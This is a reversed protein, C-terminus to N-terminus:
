SWISSFNNGKYSFWSISPIKIQNSIVNLRNNKKRWYLLLMSNLESPVLGLEVVALLALIYFSTLRFLSQFSSERNKLFWMNSVVFNSFYIDHQWSFLCAMFGVSPDSYFPSFLSAKFVVMDWHHFLCFVKYALYVSFEVLLWKESIFGQLLYDM